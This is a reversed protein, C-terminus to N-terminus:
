SIQVIKDLLISYNWAHVHDIIATMSFVSQMIFAISVRM